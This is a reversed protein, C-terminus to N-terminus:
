ECVGVYLHTCEPFCVKFFVHAKHYKVKSGNYYSFYPEEMSIDNGPILCHIKQLKQWSKTPKRSFNLNVYLELLTILVSFKVPSQHSYHVSFKAPPLMLLKWNFSLCQKQQASLVISQAFFVSCLCQSVLLPFSIAANHICRLDQQCGKLPHCHCTIRSQQREQLTAGEHHSIRTLLCGPLLHSRVWREGVNTLVLGHYHGM